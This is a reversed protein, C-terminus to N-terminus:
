GHRTEVGCTTGAGAKKRTTTGGRRGTFPPYELHEKLHNHLIEAELTQAARESEMVNWRLSLTYGNAILQEARGAIGRGHHGSPYRYGYLRCVDSKGGLLGTSGVYVINSHGLVRPFIIKSWLVYVAPAEHIEGRSSLCLPWDMSNGFSQDVTTSISM